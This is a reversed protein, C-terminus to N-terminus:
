KRFMRSPLFDRMIAPHRFKEFKKRTLERELEKEEEVKLRELEIKAEIFRQRFLKSWVENKNFSYKPWIWINRKSVNLTM